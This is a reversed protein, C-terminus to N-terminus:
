TEKTDLYNKQSFIPEPKGFPKIRSSSILVGKYIKHYHYILENKLIRM